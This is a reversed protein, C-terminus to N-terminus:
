EDASKVTHLDFHGQRLRQQQSMSGSKVQYSDQSVAMKEFSNVNTESSRTEIEYSVVTREYSLARMEYSVAETEYSLARMEYSIAATEYSIMM